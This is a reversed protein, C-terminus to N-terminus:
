EHELCQRHSVVAGFMLAGGLAVTVEPNKCCKLREQIFQVFGARKIDGCLVDAFLTTPNWLLTLQRFSLEKLRYHHHSKPPRMYM